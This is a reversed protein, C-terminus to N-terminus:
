EGVQVVGTDYPFLYLCTSEGNDQQVWIEIADKNETEDFVKLEGISVLCDLILNLFYNEDRVEFLTFYSIEKGYLLYYKNKYKNCLDCIMTKHNDKIELKPLQSVMQKNLDYLNLNLGSKDMALKRWEGDTYTFFDGSVSDQIVEGEIPTYKIQSKDIKLFTSKNM